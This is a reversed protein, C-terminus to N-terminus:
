HDRKSDEKFLKQYRKNRRMKKINVLMALINEIKNIREFVQSKCRSIRNQRKREM